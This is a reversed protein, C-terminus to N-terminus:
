PKAAVLADRHAEAGDGSAAGRRGRARDDPVVYPTAGTPLSPTFFYTADRRQHRVTHVLEKWTALLGKSAIPLDWGIAERLKPLNYYPVAAYMHHEVHYQLNWYFFASIPDGIYTRTNQRWDAVDPRMGIHQPSHTLVRYWQNAFPALQVLVILYWNGSAIFLVLLTAHVLLTFRAFRRLSRISRTDAPPFIRREWEATFM